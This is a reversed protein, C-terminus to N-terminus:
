ASRPLCIARCVSVLRVRDKTRVLRAPTASASTTIPMTMMAREIARGSAEIVAVMLCTASPASFTTTGYPLRASSIPPSARAIWIKWSAIPRLRLRAECTECSEAARSCRARWISCDTSSNRSAIPAIM